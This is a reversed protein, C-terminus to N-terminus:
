DERPAFLGLLVITLILGIFPLTVDMDNRRRVQKRTDTKSGAVAKSLSISRDRCVGSCRQKVNKASLLLIMTDKCSKLEPKVNKVYTNM